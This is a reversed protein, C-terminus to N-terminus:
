GRQGANSRGSGGPSAGLATRELKLRLQAPCCSEIGAAAGLAALQLVSAESLRLAVATVEASAEIMPESIDFYIEM